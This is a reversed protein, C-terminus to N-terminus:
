GSSRADERQQLLPAISRSSRGTTARGEAPRDRRVAQALEEFKNAQAFLQQIEWYHNGFLAPELKIAVKYQELAADREGTQQLQQAVQFRLKGDDPKLEAMKLLTAKLKEKDGAAQYYDVLAQHIQLSKPSAKLQAEAREIMEKLQGSRALM